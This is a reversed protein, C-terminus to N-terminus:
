SGGGCIEPYDEIARIQAAYTSWNTASKYRDVMSTPVYIYGTGGEIPTNTFVGTSSMTPATTAVREIILAALKICGNFANAGLNTLQGLKVTELEECGQFVGTSTKTVLPINVNKLKYCYQFFYTQLTDKLNPMDVSELASCYRFASQASSTVNPLRVTVLSDSYAFAYQRTIETLSEDDITTLTCEALEKFRTDAEGSGAAKDRLIEQLEVILEEQETLIANLDETGGGSAKGELASTIQAILDTQTSVENAIRNIEDRIAM